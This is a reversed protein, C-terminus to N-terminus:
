RYTLPTSVATRWDRASRMDLVTTPSTSSSPSAAKYMIDTDSYKRKDKDGYKWDSQSLHPSSKTRPLM